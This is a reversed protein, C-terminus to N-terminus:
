STTPIRPFTVRSTLRLFTGLLWSFFVEREEMEQQRQMRNKILSDKKSRESETERDDKTQGRRSKKRPPLSHTGRRKKKTSGATSLVCPLFSRIRLQCFIPIQRDTRSEGGVNQKECVYKKDTTRGAEAATHSFDDRGGNRRRKRVHRRRWLCCCCRHRYCCCHTHLAKRVLSM